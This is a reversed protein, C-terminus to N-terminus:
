GMGFLAGLFIPVLLVLGFLFLALLLLRGFCGGRRPPPAHEVEVEHARPGGASGAATIM